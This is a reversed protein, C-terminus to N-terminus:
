QSEAKKTLIKTLGLRDRAGEFGEKSPAGMDNSGLMAETVGLDRLRKSVQKMKALRPHNSSVFREKFFLIQHETGETHDFVSVFLRRLDIKIRTQLEPFPESDFDDYHLFTLKRSGLHIKIVDAEAPDGFLRAGCDVYVRFIPPLESLLDRHIAFHGEEADIWGFGIDDLAIELEDPDGSAFLLDRAEDCASAYDGFFAKIDRRLSDPLRALATRRKQFEGAALYVLIDERRRAAAQALDSQHEDNELFVQQAKPISGAADRVAQYDDFEEANSPARGLQLCCAWFSELLETHRAYLSLKAPKPPRLSRLRQSITEWNIVRRSRRSLYDQQDEARRFVLFIGLGAPTPEADLAHEVMVQFEGASFYKQFTNSQTVLGDGHREASSYTQQGDILISIVLVKKALGWAATLTDIREAPDEIVNLVYGLNVIDAKTKPNAPAFAPDWGSAQYELETLGAVDTGLGCGYDFLTTKPQLLGAQLITKIPKSLDTRTMATRWREIQDSALRSPAPLQPSSDTPDASESSVLRHGDYCLGKDDLLRNWNEEFGITATQEYLGAEEEARTLAAFEEARPDDPALFTEKRHLIPRNTRSAYDTARIKGLSLDIVISSALAPHPDTDFDPYALFSVKFSDRHLKLLNAEEAPHGSDALETRCRELLDRLVEPLSAEAETHIYIATPLRKGYEVEALAAKYADIKVVSLV